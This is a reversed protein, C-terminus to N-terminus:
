GGQELQTQLEDIDTQSLAEEVVGGCIEDIEEDSISALEEELNYKIAYPRGNHWYVPQVDSGVSNTESEPIRVGASLNNTDIDTIFPLNSATTVGDGIKIKNPIASDTSKYIILEGELPAEATQAWNEATDIRQKIRTKLVKQEM